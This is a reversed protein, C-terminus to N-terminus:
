LTIMGAAWMLLFLVVDIALFYLALRIPRVTYVEGAIEVSTEKNGFLAAVVALALPAGFAFYGRGSM